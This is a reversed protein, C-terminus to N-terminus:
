LDLEGSKGDPVASAVTEGAAVSPKPRLAGVIANTIVETRVHDRDLKGGTVHDILAVARVFIALVEDPDWLVKLAVECRKEMENSNPQPPYSNDILLHVAM